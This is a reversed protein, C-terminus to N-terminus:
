NVPVGFYVGPIDTRQYEPKNRDNYEKRKASRRIKIVKGDEDM